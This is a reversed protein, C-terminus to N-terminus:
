MKSNASRLARWLSAPPPEDGHIADLRLGEPTPGDHTLVHLQSWTRPEDRRWGDPRIAIKGVYDLGAAIYSVHHPHSGLMQRYVDVAGASGLKYSPIVLAAVAPMRLKPLPIASLEPLGRLLGTMIVAAGTTKGFGNASHLYIEAEGCNEILARQAPSSPRFHRVPDARASEDLALTRAALLQLPTTM